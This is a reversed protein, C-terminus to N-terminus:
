AKWVQGLNVPSVIPSVTKRQIDHKPPDMAIFM